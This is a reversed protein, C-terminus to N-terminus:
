YASYVPGQWLKPHIKYKSEHQYQLGLHAFATHSNRYATNFDLNTNKLRQPQPLHNSGITIATASSLSLVSSSAIILLKRIM